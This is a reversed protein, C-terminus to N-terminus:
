MGAIDATSFLLWEVPLYYSLGWIFDLACYVTYNSFEMSKLIMLYNEDNTFNLRASDYFQSELCKYENNLCNKKGATAMSFM